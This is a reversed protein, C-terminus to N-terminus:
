IQVFIRCLERDIGMDCVFVRLCKLEMCLVAIFMVMRCNDRCTKHEFRKRKTVETSSARERGLLPSIQMFLDNVRFTLLAASSFEARLTRRKSRGMDDARSPKEKAPNVSCAGMSHPPRLRQGCGQRQASPMTSQRSFLRVFTGSVRGSSVVSIYILAM